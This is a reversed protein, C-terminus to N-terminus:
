AAATFPTMGSPARGDLRLLLARSARMDAEDFPPPLPFHAAMRSKLTM